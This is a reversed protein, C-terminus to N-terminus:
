NELGGREVWGKYIEDPWWDHIRAILATKEDGSLKDGFAPMKGGLPIGGQDITRLLTSIPHHWTHASGNLPPPPYSGDALPKKWDAALGQGEAGHCVACNEAFLEKGLELQSATYWKGKITEGALVAASLSFIAIITFFTKM